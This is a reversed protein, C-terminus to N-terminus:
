KSVSSKEILEIGEMRVEEILAEIKGLVSDLINEADEVSLTDGISKMASILSDRAQYNAGDLENALFLIRNEFNDPSNATITHPNQVSQNTM